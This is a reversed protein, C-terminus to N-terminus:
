RGGSRKGHYKMPVKGMPLILNLNSFVPKLFALPPVGDPVMAPHVRYILLSPSFFFPFLFLSEGRVGLGFIKV